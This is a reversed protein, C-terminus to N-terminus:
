LLAGCINVITERTSTSSRIHEATYPLLRSRARRLRVVLEPDISKYLYLGTVIIKELGSLLSEYFKKEKQLADRLMRIREEFRKEVAASVIEEPTKPFAVPMKGTALNPFPIATLTADFWSMDSKSSLEYFIHRLEKYKRHFSEFEAVPIVRGLNGECWPLSSEYFWNRLQGAVKNVEPTANPCHVQLHVLYVTKHLM